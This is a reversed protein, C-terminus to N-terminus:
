VRSFAYVRAQSGRAASGSGDHRREAGERRVPLLEGLRGGVAPQLQPVGPGGGQPLLESAGGVERQARGTHRPVALRGGGRQHGHPRVAARHQQPVGRAADWLLVAGGDTGVAVLAAAASKGHWAVCTSRLALHSSRALEQRLTSSGTDWLQLRGDPAAEALQQGDPSFARLSSM